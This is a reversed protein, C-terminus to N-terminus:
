ANCGRGEGINCAAGFTVDIGAGVGTGAGTGMARLAAMPKTGGDIIRRCNAGGLGTAFLGFGDTVALAM